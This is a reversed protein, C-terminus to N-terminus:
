YGRGPKRGSRPAGRRQSPSLRSILSRKAHVIDSWKKDGYTCEPKLSLTYHCWWWRCLNFIESKRQSGFEVTRM